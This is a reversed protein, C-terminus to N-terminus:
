KFSSLLKGNLSNNLKYSISIMVQVITQIQCEQDPVDSCIREVLTKQQTVMKHSTTNICQCFSVSELTRRATREGEGGPHHHVPEGDQRHPRGQVGRLLRGPM